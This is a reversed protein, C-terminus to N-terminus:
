SKLLFLFVEFVHKTKNKIFFPTQHHFTWEHILVCLLWQISTRLAFSQKCSFLLLLLLILNFFIISNCFAVRNVVLISYLVYKQLANLICQVYIYIRSLYGIHYVRKLLGTWNSISIYRAINCKICAVYQLCTLPRHSHPM